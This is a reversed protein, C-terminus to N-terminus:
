RSERPATGGDAQPEPGTAEEGDPAGEEVPVLAASQRRRREDDESGLVRDAASLLVSLRVHVLDVDAVGLVVEGDLVVGQNLLHDVLDLVSGDGRDLLDVVRDDRRNM